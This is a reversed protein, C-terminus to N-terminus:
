SRVGQEETTCRTLQFVFGIRGFDAHSDAALAWARPRDTSEGAWDPPRWLVLNAPPDEDVPRRVKRGTPGAARAVREVSSQKLGPGADQARIHTENVARRTLAEEGRQRLRPPAEPHPIGVTRCAERRRTIEFAKM